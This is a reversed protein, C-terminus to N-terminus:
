HAPDPPDPQDLSALALRLADILAAAQAPTLDHGDHRGATSRFDVAIWPTARGTRTSVTIGVGARDDNPVHHTAM